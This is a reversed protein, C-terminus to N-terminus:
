YHVINNSYFHSIQLCNRNSIEKLSLDVYSNVKEVKKWQLTKEEVVIQLKGIKTTNLRFEKSGDSQKETIWIFQHQIM